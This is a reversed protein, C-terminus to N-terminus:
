ATPNPDRGAVRDHSAAHMPQGQLSLLNELTIEVDLVRIYKATAAAIQGLDQPM